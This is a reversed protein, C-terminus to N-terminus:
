EYRLAVMPDVQSARRAPLLGALVAALLLLFTAFLLALPDAFSLGFLMSRVFYALLIALPIGIPVGFLVITLTERLVQRRIRAPEAGLALRIGIERTRRAVTYAMVGYLGIAALLMALIGFAESLQKIFRDSQLSDNVLGSMTHIEIPPIAPNAVVVINRLSDSVAAPDAFTRVEFAADTEEWLPHFFPAYLRPVSKERLSNHRVDAVVGVIEVDGPNGPYTDRVRKGIPNSDPFFRKAFAQNIVGARPGNGSDQQEIERGMLIPIGVTSFYRPGVHDMRSNMAEDPKPTYGEVSIPDGSESHLFLGNSSLSISRVGPVAAFSDLLNQHLLRAEPGKLGAAAADVRFLLLKERDFGLNVESLNGLSRVFMGAAVLLILSVAVQAIVLIKGAAWKGPRGDGKGAQSTSKLVPALELRTLLLSPILGFLIATLATVGVTFALVRFDPYLDLHVSSSSAHGSVMRMLLRDAWYSLAIGAVAGLLALLLSETLL